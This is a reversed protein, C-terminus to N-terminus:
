NMRQSPPAVRPQIPSSFPNAFVSSAKFVTPVVAGLFIRLLFSVAQVVVEARRPFARSGFSRHQTFAHGGGLACLGVGVGVLLRSPMTRAHSWKGQVRRKKMRESPHLFKRSQSKSRIERIRFNEWISVLSSDIKDPFQRSSIGTLKYSNLYLSRCGAKGISVM